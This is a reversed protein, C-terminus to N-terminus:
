RPDGVPTFTGGSDSYNSFTNAGDATTKFFPSNTNNHLLSVTKISTIASASSAYFILLGVAVFRFASVAMLQLEPSDICLDIELFKLRRGVTVCCSGANSGPSRIERQGLPM